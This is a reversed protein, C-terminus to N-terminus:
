RSQRSRRRLVLVLMLLTVTMLMIYGYLKSEDGTDTGRSKKLSPADEAKTTDNEDNNTIVDDSTPEDNDSTTDNDSGPEDPTPDDTPETPTPDDSPETPTEEDKMIVTNDPQDAGDVTVTGDEEVKFTIDEAIEYGEPSRTERLTYTEGAVLKKEIKHNEGEVSVWEEIVENGHLVQLTAGGLEKSGAIDTKSITVKTWDDEMTVKNGAQESGGVTVKGDQTVTFDISEAKLYGDPATTETLTYTGPLLRVKKTEAGSTWEIPEFDVVDSSTIKLSAGPLESTGGIEVKSIEVETETLPPYNEVTMSYTYEGNQADYQTNYESWEDSTSDTPPTFIIDDIPMYGEPPDVEVIRYKGKVPLEGYPMFGFRLKGDNDTQTEAIMEGDQVEIDYSTTIPHGSVNYIQFTVDGLEVTREADPKGVKELDLKFYEKRGAQFIFARAHQTDDSAGYNFMECLGNFYAGIDGQDASTTDLRVYSESMGFMPIVWSARPSRTWTIPSDNLAQDSGWLRQNSYDFYLKDHGDPVEVLDISLSDIDTFPASPPYTGGAISRTYGWGDNEYLQFADASSRAIGDSDSPGVEIERGDVTVKFKVGALGDGQEDLVKIEIGVTEPVIEVDAIARQSLGISMFISMLILVFGIMIHRRSINAM